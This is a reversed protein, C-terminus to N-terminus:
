FDFQMLLRKSPILAPSNFTSPLDRLSGVIQQLDRSTPSVTTVFLGWKSYPAASNQKIGMGLLQQGVSQRLGDQHGQVDGTYVVSVGALDLLASSWTKPCTM